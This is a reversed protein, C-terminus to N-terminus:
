LQNEEMASISFQSQSTYRDDGPCQILPLHFLGAVPNSSSSGVVEGPLLDDGALVLEYHSVVDVGGGCRPM